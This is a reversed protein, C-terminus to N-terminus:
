KLVLIIDLKKTNIEQIELDLLGGFGNEICKLVFEHWVEGAGVRVIVSSDSEEIVEFGKIENVLVLGDFQYKTFLVNSGGGLVLLEKDAYRSLIPSLEEVNSFTGFYSANVDIGFTNFQKINTNESIM